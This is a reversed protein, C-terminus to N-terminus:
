VLPPEEGGGTLSGLIADRGGAGEGEAEVIEPVISLEYMGDDNIDTVEFSLVDGVAKEALEPIDDASHTLITGPAEEEVLTEDALPEGEEVPLPEEVLTEDLIEEAM